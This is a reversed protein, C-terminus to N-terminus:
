RTRVLKGSEESWQLDTEEVFFERTCDLGSVEVQYAVAVDQSVVLM